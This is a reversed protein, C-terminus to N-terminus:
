SRSHATCPGCVTPRSSTSSAPRRPSCMPLTLRGVVQCFDCHFAGPLMASASLANLLRATVSISDVDGTERDEHTCRILSILYPQVFGRLVESVAM